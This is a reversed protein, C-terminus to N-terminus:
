RRGEARRVAQQDVEILPRKILAVDSCIVMLM